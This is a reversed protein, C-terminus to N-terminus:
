ALGQQMTRLSGIVHSRTDDELGDAGVEAADLIDGLVDTVECAAVLTGRVPMGDPGMYGAEDLRAAISDVIDDWERGLNTEMLNYGFAETLDADNLDVAILVRM